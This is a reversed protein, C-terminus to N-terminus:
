IFMFWVWDGQYDKIYENFILKIDSNPKKLELKIEDVYLGMEDFDTICIMDVDEIKIIKSKGIYNQALYM